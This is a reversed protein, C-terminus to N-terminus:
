NNLPQTSRLYAFLDRVQQDGLEKLLGEPMLSTGTNRLEEIEARPINTNEGNFGRLVIVQADQDALFGTLARGDHTTVAFTEFGERIEANPDVIHRLMNDLQERNYATLDPGIQGGQSFLTHCKACSATFLKKGEYPSGHGTALVNTLRERESKVLAAAETISKGWLREVAADIKLDRHLALKKVIPMPLSTAPIRGREIAALLALASSARSTLLNQALPQVEPPFAAYAQLLGAPIREDHFNALAALAARQLKAQKADAALELLLPIARAARVEGLVVILEERLELKTAKNALAALAEDLAAPEDLRVRLALGAKGTKGLAVVLEPPLNTPTRGRYAAEFGTVLESAAAPTAQELLKAAHLLDARKGTSAYRQMVRALLQTRTLPESSFEPDACLALVAEPATGCHAELAWWLLLPLQPDAPDAHRVLGRVINLAPVTPLRKATCALQACVEINPESRALEALKAAVNSAVQREDGLLRVTWLRVYPDAHALAALETAPDLGGSQYLAWLAELAAQGTQAALMTRLPAVAAPDRRDGLLRLVTQRVWINNDQLLALLEATTKKSLDDRPPQKAHKAQLRYVRGTQKDIEGESNRLHSTQKDCWDAIYLAGEPGVAIDVPRFWRDSSTIFDLDKTEFTSGRPKLESISVYNLLPAVAFMRGAYKEPLSGGAYIVLEHTFRPVRDHKLAPFYGFAYPNSLPGHKNFGKQLYAGQVYYFGRTDGGNHGSFMRGKADIELGFANGGGEAFIEFRRTEPHYRWLLQGQSPVGPKDPADLGVRRVNATVTSGQAAYLWGDPGFRLSNTVSHSDEIGFGSLHVVPDGDPVDDNNKDPYFLLYPPNLVWVGGRGRAVSTVLSLGEVFIKHQDYVGDGDTDAHISIRDAGPFHHPPAPPIKDYINRWYNDRSVIKLGAPEPYQRYEVLWLRGREDFSLHLPQAITPEALVQKIELDDPLKFSQEAVRPNASPRDAKEQAAAPWALALVVVVNQWRCPKGSIKMRPDVLDDPFSSADQARHV